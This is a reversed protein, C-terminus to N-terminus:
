IQVSVSCLPSELLIEAVEELVPKKFLVVQGYAFSNGKPM